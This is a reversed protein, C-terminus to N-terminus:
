KGWIMSFATPNKEGGNILTNHVGKGESIRVHEDKQRSNGKM